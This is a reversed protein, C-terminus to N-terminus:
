SKPLTPTMIQSKGKKKKPSITPPSVSQTQSNVATMHGTLEITTDKSPDKSFNSNSLLTPPSWLMEEQTYDPGLLVELACSVFQPYSVYNVRKKSSLRTVLDSYIIEGIDVKTGTM